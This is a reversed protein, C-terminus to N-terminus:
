FVTSPGVMHGPAYVNHLVITAPGLTCRIQQYRARLLDNSNPVVVANQLPSHPHIFTALGGTARLNPASPYSPSEWFHLGEHNTIRQWHYTVRAQISPSQFRTEQIFTVDHKSAIHQLIYRHSNAFGNTNLSFLQPDWDVIEPPLNSNQSMTM